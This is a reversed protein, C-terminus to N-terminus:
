NLNEFVGDSFFYKFPYVGKSCQLYKNVLVCNITSQNINIKQAIDVLKMPKLSGNNMFFDKQINAIELVVKYLTLRRKEICKIASQAQKIKNSIYEKTDNSINEDNIMDKYQKNISIEPFYTDNLIVVFKDLRSKLIVDPVIYNFTDENSFSNGPKPNLNKIINCAKITDEISSDMKEAILSIKNKSLEELMENVIREALEDKKERQRLQILLCEKLSSAGVGAPEFSQVCEFAKKISKASINFPKFIEYLTDFNEKVYGNNDMNEIIYKSIIYVERELSLVNLQNLLNDKLTEGEVKKFKWDDDDDNENYIKNQEDSSDLWDLKSKVTNFEKNINENKEEYDIVPNEVALERIYELLEISSMQLIREFIEVNSSFINKKSVELNLSM